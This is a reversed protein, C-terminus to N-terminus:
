LKLPKIRPPLIAARQVPRIRQVPPLEPRKIRDPRAIRDTDETSSALQAETANPQGDQLLRALDAWSVEATQTQRDIDRAHEIPPLPTSAQTKEITRAPVTDVTSIEERLRALILADSTLEYQTAEAISIEASDRTLNRDAIVRVPPPLPADEILEAPVVHTNSAALNSISKDRQVPDFLVKLEQQENLGLFPRLGTGGFGSENGPVAMRGTGGLGSGEDEEGGRVIGTSNSYNWLAVLLLLLAMLLGLKQSRSQQELVKIM